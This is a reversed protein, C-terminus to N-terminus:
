MTAKPSMLEYARRDTVLACENVVALPMPALTGATRTPKRSIDSNMPVAALTPVVCSAKLDPMEADHFM